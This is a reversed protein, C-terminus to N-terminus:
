KCPNKVRLHLGIYVSLYLGIINPNRKRWFRFHKERKVHTNMADNSMKEAGSTVVEMEVVKDGFVVVSIIAESLDM